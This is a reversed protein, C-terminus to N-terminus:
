PSATANPNSLNSSVTSFIGRMSTGSTSLAVIVVLAVFGLIFAYEVMGQGNEEFLIERVLGM